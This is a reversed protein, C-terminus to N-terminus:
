PWCCGRRSPLYPTITYVWETAAGHGKLRRVPETPLPNAYVDDNVRDLANGAHAKFVPRAQDFPLIKDNFARRPRNFARLDRPLSVWVVKLLPRDHLHVTENGRAPRGVSSVRVWNTMALLAAVRRDRQQM